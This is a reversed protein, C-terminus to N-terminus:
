CRLKRKSVRRNYEQVEEQSERWKRFEELKDVNIASIRMDRFFVDLDRLQASQVSAGNGYRMYEDRVGEYKLRTDGKVGARSEARWEDLQRQAEDPDSTPPTTKKFKKQGDISLYLRYNSATATPKYFGGGSVEHQAIAMRKGGRKQVPSLTTCNPHLTLLFISNYKTKHLRKWGKLTFIVPEIGTRAVMGLVPNQRSGIRFDFIPPVM